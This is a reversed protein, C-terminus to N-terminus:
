IPATIGWKNYYSQKPSLQKNGLPLLLIKGKWLMWVPGSAKQNEHDTPVPTDKKM